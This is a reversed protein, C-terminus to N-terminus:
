FAPFNSQVHASIHSLWDKDHCCACTPEFFRKCFDDGHGGSSYQDIFYVFREEIIKRWERNERWLDRYNDNSVIVGETEAALRM